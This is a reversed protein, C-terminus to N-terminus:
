QSKSTVKAHSYFEIESNRKQIYNKFLKFVICYSTFLLIYFIALNFPNYEFISLAGSQAISIIMLAIAIVIVNILFKISFASNAITYKIVLSSNRYIEGDISLEEIKKLTSSYTNRLNYISYILVTSCWVYSIGDDNIGLSLVIVSFFCLEVYENLCNDFIPFSIHSSQLNTRTM